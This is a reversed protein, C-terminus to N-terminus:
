SIKVKVSFEIQCIPRPFDKGALHDRNSFLIEFDPVLPVFRLESVKAGGRQAVKEEGGIVVEGNAHFWGGYLKENPALDVCTVEIDKKYDIGFTRLMDKFEQPLVRDRNASFWKCDECTCKEAGSILKEQAQRTADEDVVIVWDKIQIKKVRNEEILKFQPDKKDERNPKKVNKINRREAAGFLQFNKQARKLSVENAGGESDPDEFQVPDDEWFCIECIEYSGRTKEALTMYGCCPCTYKEIPSRKFM